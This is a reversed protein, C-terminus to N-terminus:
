VRVHGHKELRTPVVRAVPPQATESAEQAAPSAQQAAAQQASASPVSLASLAAWGALVATLTGGHSRNTSQWHDLM